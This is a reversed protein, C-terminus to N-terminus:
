GRLLQDSLQEGENYNLEDYVKKNEKGFEQLLFEPVFGGADATNALRQQTLDRTYLMQDITDKYSQFSAAPNRFLGEIHDQVTNTLARMGKAQRYADTLLKLKHELAVISNVKRGEFEIEEGFKTSLGPNKGNIYSAFAQGVLNKDKLKSSLFIIDKTLKNIDKTPVIAKGIEVAEKRMEKLEDKDSVFEPKAVLGPKVEIGVMQEGSVPDTWSVERKGKLFEKEDKPLNKQVAAPIKLKELEIEGKRVENQGKLKNIDTLLQEDERTNKIRNGYVDAIGKAGGGLAGLAAGKGYIAGLIVPMLLALGVYWKDMDTTANSEIREKIRNLQEDYGAMEAENNSELDALVKEYRATEDKIQQTFDQGTIEKFTENLSPQNAALDTAGYVIHAMPNEQGAEVEAMVQAEQAQQAQADQALKEEPNTIGQAMMQTKQLLKANPSEKSGYTHAETGFPQIYEKLANGISSWISSNASQPEEAQIPQENPNLGESREVQRTEIPPNSKPAQTNGTQFALARGFRSWFGEEEQPAEQEPVEVTNARVDYSQPTLEGGLDPEPENSTPSQFNAFNPLPQATGSVDPLEDELQELFEAGPMVRRGSVNKLGQLRTLVNGM